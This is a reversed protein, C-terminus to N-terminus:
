QRSVVGTGVRLLHCYGIAVAQKNGRDGGEVSSLIVTGTQKSVVGAGVRM